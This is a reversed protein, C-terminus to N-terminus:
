NSKKVVRNVINRLRNNYSSNISAPNTLLKTVVNQENSTLTKFFNSNVEIEANRLRNAQPKILRNFRSRNNVAGTRNQLKNLRKKLEQVSKLNAAKQAEEAKRKAEAANAIQQSTRQANAVKKNDELKTVVDRFQSLVNDMQSIKPNEHNRSFGLGLIGSTTKNVHYAPSMVNLKNGSISQGGLEKFTKYLKLFDNKFDSESKIIENEIKQVLKILEKKLRDNPNGNVIEQGLTEVDTRAKSILKIIDSARKSFKNTM